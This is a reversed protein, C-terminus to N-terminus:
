FMYMFPPLVSTSGNTEPQPLPKLGGLFLADASYSLAKGALSGYMEEADSQMWFTGDRELFDHISWGVLLVPVGYRLAAGGLVTARGLNRSKQLRIERAEFDEMTELRGPYKRPKKYGTPDVRIRGLVSRKAGTPERVYTFRESKTPKRDVQEFALNKNSKMKQVREYASESLYVENLSGTSPGYKGVITANVFVDPNLIRAAGAAIMANGITVATRKTASRVAYKQM